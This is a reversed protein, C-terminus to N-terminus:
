QHHRTLIQLYDDGSTLVLGWWERCSRAQQRFVDPCRPCEPEVADDSVVMALLSAGLLAGRKDLLPNNTGRGM